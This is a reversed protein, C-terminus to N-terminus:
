IWRSVSQKYEHYSRGFENALRNEEIPIYFSNLIVFLAISFILLILSGFSITLGLSLTVGSLYIPNRSFRFPGDTVLRNPTEGFDITTNSRRLTSGSWINLIVGLVILVVGAFSFSTPVIRKIPFVFHLGIAFVLLINLYGPPLFRKKM